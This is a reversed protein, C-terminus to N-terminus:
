AVNRPDTIRPVLQDGGADNWIRNFAERKHPGDNRACRLLGSGLGQRQKHIAVAAM